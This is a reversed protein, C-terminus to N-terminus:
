TRTPGWFMVMHWFEMHSYGATKNYRVVGISMRSQHLLGARSGVRSVANKRPVRERTSTGRAVRLSGKGSYGVTTLQTM